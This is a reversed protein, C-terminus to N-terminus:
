AANNLSKNHKQLKSGINAVEEANASDVKLLLRKVWFLL